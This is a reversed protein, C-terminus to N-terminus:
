EHWEPGGYRQTCCWVMFNALTRTWITKSVLGVPVDYRQGDALVSVTADDAGVLFGKLRRRSEFEASLTMKIREGVFRQFDEVGFLPRFVGPSSVELTYASQIPDEVDMVSSIQRSARACDDVTVGEVNDIYVRLTGNGGGHYELGVWEFGLGEVAPRLLQELRHGANSTRGPEVEWFCFFRASPGSM